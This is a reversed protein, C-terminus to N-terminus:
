LQPIDQKGLEMKGDVNRVTVFCNWNADDQEPFDPRIYQYRTEERFLTARAAMEAVDLLNYNEIAEKWEKSWNPSTDVLTMKPLDETRIREYEAIAAELAEKSRVLSCCSYFTKQINERIAHPRIGADATNVRITTLRKFEDIAPQLDVSTPYAEGAAYEAAMHGAYCGYLKLVSAISPVKRISCTGAGRVDFYGEFESMLKEDVLPGGFKEFMDPLVEVPDNVVDIGAHERIYKSASEFDRSEEAKGYLLYAGGNPSGRNELVVQSIGLALKSASDVEEPKEFVPDGNKDIFNGAKVFDAGVSCTYALRPAASAFDYKAWETEAMTMGKRYCIGQMDGTNDLGGLSVPKTNVWGHVMQASGSCNVTAKARFVRYTGTPIHVGMAGLCRTGNILLDTIMTNDFANVSLRSLLGDMERRFYQEGYWTTVVPSLPEIEGTETRLVFTQGHNIQYIPNNIEEPNYISQFHNIVNKWLPMHVLYDSLDEPDSNDIQSYCSWSWNSPGGHRCSTKDVFTVQRGEKLAQWAAAIASNGTGMILVDTDIIEFTQGDVELVTGGGSTGSAAPTTTCASIMGAAAFGATGLAAGKLFNRRSLGQKKMEERNTMM